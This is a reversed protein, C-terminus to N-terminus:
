NQLYGYLEKKIEAHNHFLLNFFVNIVDCYFIIFIVDCITFFFWLVDDLFTIVSIFFSGLMNRILISTHANLSINVNNSHVQQQSLYLDMHINFFKRKYKVFTLQVDFHVKKGFIPIWYASIFADLLCQYHKLWFKSVAPEQVPLDWQGQLTWFYPGAAPIRNPEENWHTEYM